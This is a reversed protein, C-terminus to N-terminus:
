FSFLVIRLTYVPDTVRNLVRNRGVTFRIRVLAFISYLACRIQAIRSMRLLNIPNVRGAIGDVVNMAFCDFLKLLVGPRKRMTDRALDIQSPKAKLRLGWRKM